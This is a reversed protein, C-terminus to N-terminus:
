IEQNEFAEEQCQKLGDELTPYKFKINLQKFLKDVSIKKSEKLYSMMAPSIDKEAQQWDIEEPASLHFTKAVQIFYDSISSPNGDTANYIENAFTSQMAAICIHALDDAHIRNSAPAINAQLVKVGDKIRALPLKELCYIGGVRLIVYECNTRQCFQKLQSEASLRRKSRDTPAPTESSENIWNGQQDGYVGTTSIYVIRKPPNTENLNVIFNAMRTDVIGRAPPPALYYIQATNEPLSLPTENDDLDAFFSKIGLSKLIEQSEKQHSAAIVTQGQQRVLTAVRKGIDGCGIILATETM